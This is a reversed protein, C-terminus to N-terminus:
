YTLFAAHWRLADFSRKSSIVVEANPRVAVTAMLGGGNLNSLRQGALLRGEKAYQADTNPAASITFEIWLSVGISL